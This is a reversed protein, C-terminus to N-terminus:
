PTELQFPWELGGCGGTVTRARMTGFAILRDVSAAIAAAEPRWQEVIAEADAVM